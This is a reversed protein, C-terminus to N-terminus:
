KSQTAVEDSNEISNSWYIITSIVITEGQSYEHMKNPSMNSRKVM